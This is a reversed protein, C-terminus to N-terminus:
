QEPSLTKAQKEIKYLLRIRNLAQATLTTKKLKLQKQAKFAQDFKNRVHAWCGLQIIQNQDCVKNYGDYGDAQLYGAYGGLLDIPVQQSRTPAYDYLIITQDPAGGRRAWMYSQSQPDKLVQCRTEDMNIIDHNLLQDNMLNILPQVLLGAKIMWFALTSRTIPIGHRKLDQEQRYLPVGNIYKGNAM